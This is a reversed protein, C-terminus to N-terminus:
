KLFLSASKHDVIADKNIGVNKDISEDNKLLNFGSKNFKIKFIIVSTTIFIINLTLSVGLIFLM